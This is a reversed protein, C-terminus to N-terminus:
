LVEELIKWALDIVVIAALILLAIIAVYLILCIAGGLLVLVVSVFIDM